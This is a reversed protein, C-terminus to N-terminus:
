IFELGSETEVSVAEQGLSDKIWQAITRAFELASEAPKDHYSKVIIVSEEVLTGDDSVYYGTSPIATAGGFEAFLKRATERAYEAQKQKTLEGTLGTTGPVYVSVFSKLM